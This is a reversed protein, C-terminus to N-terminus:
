AVAGIDRVTAVAEEESEAEETDLDSQTLVLGHEEIMRDLVLLGAVLAVDIGLVPKESASAYGEEQGHVELGSVLCDLEVV